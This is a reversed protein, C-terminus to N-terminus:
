HERLEIREIAGLELGRRLFNLGSPRENRLSENPANPAQAAPNDVPPVSSGSLPFVRATTSSVGVPGSRPWISSSATTKLPMGYLGDM